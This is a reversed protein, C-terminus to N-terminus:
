AEVPAADPLQRLRPLPSPLLWLVATLSAVTAIWLTPRLGIAAGLAGGLIAGLPRVGYNVLMYAGSVRARLQDPVVAALLAGLSIDLIMVGVGSGFEALGLLGLLVPMPGSALPWLLLPAPFLVFGIVLARGIGVRSTLRSTVLSGLIAGLAGVGLLLGLAVAGIGLERTAYLVFIAWFMFNFLNITASAGLAARVVPTQAIFRLGARM